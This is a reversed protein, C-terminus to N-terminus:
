GATTKQPKDVRRAVRIVLFSIQPVSGQSSGTMVIFHIWRIGLSGAPRVGCKLSIKLLFFKDKKHPKSM